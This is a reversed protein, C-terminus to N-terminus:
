ALTVEVLPLHDILLVVVVFLVAVKRHVLRKMSKM